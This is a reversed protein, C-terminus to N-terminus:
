KVKINKRRQIEKGALQAAYLLADLGAIEGKKAARFYVLEQETKSVYNFVEYVNYEKFKGVLNAFTKFDESKAMRDLYSLQEGTANKLIWVVPPPINRIEINTRRRKDTEETM